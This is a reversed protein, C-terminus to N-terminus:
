KGEGGDSEGGEFEGTMDAGEEDLEADAAGATWIGDSSMTALFTQGKRAVSGGM